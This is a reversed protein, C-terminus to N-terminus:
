WRNISCRWSRLPSGQMRGRGHSPLFDSCFTGLCFGQRSVAATLEKLRGGRLEEGLLSKGDGEWNWLGMNERHSDGLVELLLITESGKGPALLVGCWFAFSSIVSGSYVSYRLLDRCSTHNATSGTCGM